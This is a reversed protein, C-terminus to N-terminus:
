PTPGCRGAPFSAAFESRSFPETRVPLARDIVFRARHRTILGARITVYVTHTGEQWRGGVKLRSADLTAEFGSWRLDARPQFSNATADPRETKRTKFRAPAVRLLVPPCLIM